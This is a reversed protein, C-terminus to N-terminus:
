QKDNIMIRDLACQQKQPNFDLPIPHSLNGKHLLRDTQIKPFTSAIWIVWSSLTFSLPTKKDNQTEIAVHKMVEKFSTVMDM